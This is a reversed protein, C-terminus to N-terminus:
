RKRDPTNETARWEVGVARGIGTDKKTDLQQEAVIRARNQVQLDIILSQM